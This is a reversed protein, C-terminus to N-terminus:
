KRRKVVFKKSAKSVKRTKKGKTLWGWPSAPQRGGHSRGEGGGLPHDVPNMAVGRVHPRRGKHRARGAKGESVSSHLPNSVSGITARCRLDVLRIEGSPLKIHAYNGEKALIQSSLGASRVLEAGKTPSLEINHITVGLPINNLPLCNGLKIPANEGSVVTDGVQLGEPCLIYRKEGDAYCLLALLASRNPDYEVAKVVATINDKNRRFDVIRLIKRHGGGRHRATIRGMNNRGGSKKQSMTLSKEPRGKKLRLKNVTYFRRAPSTPRYAKIGM